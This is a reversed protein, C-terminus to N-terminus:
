HEMRGMIKEITALVKFVEKRVVHFSYDHTAINLRISELTALMIVYDSCDHASKINRQARYLEFILSSVYNNIGYNGEELLPIIKFIRSKLFNFYALQIKSDTIMKM